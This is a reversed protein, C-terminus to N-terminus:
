ITDPAIGILNKVEFEVPPITIRGGESDYIHFQIKYFGIENLDDTLDHDITFVIMDNYIAGNDKSIIEKNPKQITAKCMAGNLGRLLSTYRRGVELSPITVKINLEIGRDNQYIYFKELFNAEEGNIKIELNKIIAM